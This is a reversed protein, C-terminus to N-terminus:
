VDGGRIGSIEVYRDVAVSLVLGGTGATHRGLLGVVGPARVRIIETDDNQRTTM